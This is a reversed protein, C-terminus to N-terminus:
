KVKVKIWTSPQMDICNTITESFDGTETIGLNLAIEGNVPPKEGLVSWPIAIEQKYSTNTKSTSTLVSKIDRKVWSGDEGEKIEIKNDATVFLSFAGKVPVDYGQQNTTVYITIGDSEGINATTYINNDKVDTLIYLFEIDYYVAARAQTQGKHGIFLPFTSNWASEHFQGDVFITQPTATVDSIVHGKIMWVETANGSYANTSTLAIVTKEGTVSISNWLASKDSPIIFPRSKMDFSKAESDGIVVKMDANNINNIRDETGQYSLLTEGTSLQRIYPAGAYLPDPIPKLLAYNRNASAGNVFSAWNQSISNRLIYPKFNTFGNDEIAVVIDKKNNLLLPVPMGDRAGARYSIVEPTSTWTLGNDGSRLMSINQENSSLFVGENAFYLQIEGSPLQIAAPEWCGNEFRYDAEYLLRADTWTDGGDYSKRTKIAFKQTPVSPRLNYCVLISGDSLQLIDPVAMNVGTARNEVIVPSSWTQGEDTSKSVVVSGNSEYVCLWSQDATEILRAYGNYGSGNSIKKLSSYDWAIRIGGLYPVAPIEIPPKEDEASQKKCGSFAVLTPLLIICLLKSCNNM